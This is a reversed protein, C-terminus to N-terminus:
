APPYGHRQGHASTNKANGNRCQQHEGDDRPRLGREGLCIHIELDAETVECAAELGEAMPEIKGDPTVDPLGIGAAIEAWIEVAVPFVGAVCAPEPNRVLGIAVDDIM